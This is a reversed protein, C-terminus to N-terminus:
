IHTGLLNFYNIYYIIATFIGIIASLKAFVRFLAEGTIEITLIVGSWVLTFIMAIHILLEM